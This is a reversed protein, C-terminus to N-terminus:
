RRAGGFRVQGRSGRVETYAEAFAVRRYGASRRSLPLSLPRRSATPPASRWFFFALNRRHFMGDGCRNFYSVTIM